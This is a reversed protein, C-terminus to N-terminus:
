LLYLISIIRALTIHINELPPLFILREDQLLNRVPMIHGSDACWIRVFSVRINQIFVTICESYIVMLGSSTNHM